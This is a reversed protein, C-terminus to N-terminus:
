SPEVLITHISWAPSSIPKRGQFLCAGIKPASHDNLSGDNVYISSISGDIQYSQALDALYTLSGRFCCDRIFDLSLETVEDM